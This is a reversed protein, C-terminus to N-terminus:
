DDPSMGDIFFLTWHDPSRFASSIGARNPRRFSDIIFRLRLRSSYCGRRRLEWGKRERVVQGPRLSVGRKKERSGRTMGSRELIESQRRAGQTQASLLETEVRHIRLIMTTGEKLTCIVHRESVGVALLGWVWV